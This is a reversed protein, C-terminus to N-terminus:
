SCLMYIYNGNPNNCNYNIVQKAVADGAQAAQKLTDCYSSDSSCWNLLQTYTYSSGAPMGSMSADSPAANSSAPAVVPTAPTAPTAPAVVPAVLTNIVVPATTVQKAVPVAPNIVPSLEGGPVLSLLSCSEQSGHSCAYNLNVGSAANSVIAQIVNSNKASQSISKCLADNLGSSCVEVASLAADSNGGVAGQGLLVCSQASGALNTHMCTYGLQVGKGNSNDGIAQVINPENGVKALAACLANNSGASCVQVASFAADYSKGSVGQVLLACSQSQGPLNAHMCRYGLQNGKHNSNDGIAKIVSANDGASTIAACLPDYGGASCAQVASYAADYNGGNVGQALLTCSQKYGPLNNHMCTNGLLVGKGNSNDGIAKIVGASKSAQALAACLDDYGSASCAQVASFASDYNGGVTGLKVLDCSQKAGPNHGSAPHMCSYGLQVGKTNSNDGIAQIVNANTSNSEIASCMAPYSGAACAQVASFAADYNGGATGQLVLTCAQASGPNNKATPHMCMYGLQVGKNNSNDGIAQVVNVNNGAKAIIACMDNHLGTACLQVASFAADYNMAAAGKSLLTCAQASGPLNTHSCIYGLDVGNKNSNAGIAQVVSSGTASNVISCFDIVGNQGTYKQNSSCLQVMSVYDNASVIADCDAKSNPQQPHTCGWYRAKQKKDAVALTAVTSQGAGASVPTALKAVTSSAATRVPRTVQAAAHSQSVFAALSLLIFKKM